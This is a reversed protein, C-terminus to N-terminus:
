PTDQARHVLWLGATPVGLLLLVVSVQVAGAAMSSMLAGATIITLVLPVIISGNAVYYMGLITAWVIVNFVLAPMPEGIYACYIADFAHKPTLNLLYKYLADYEGCAM